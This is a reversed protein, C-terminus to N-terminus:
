DHFAHIGASTNAEKSDPQPLMLFYIIVLATAAASIILATTAGFILWIFGTLSSAVMTCISQLGSFTGIATATDEKNVINSIWAKSIGETAAAYIGYLFFLVFFIYLNDNVSIGFYVITFMLLGPIFITKLGAKDAIIGVPFSFLAYILNYFIYIGIVM